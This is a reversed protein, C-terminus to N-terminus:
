KSFTLKKLVIYPVYVFCLFQATLAPHKPPNNRHRREYEGYGYLSAVWFYIAIALYDENGTSTRLYYAIFSVLICLTIPLTITKYSNCYRQM